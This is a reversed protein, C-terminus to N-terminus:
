KIKDKNRTNYKIIFEEYKKKKGKTRSFEKLLEQDDTEFIQELLKKNLVFTKGTNFNIIIEHSYPTAVPMPIGGSFVNVISFGEDTFYCYRGLMTIENYGNHNIYIKEGDCFGWIENKIAKLSNSLSDSFRLRKGDFTFNESLSPSNYKFEKFNKYIGKNLAPAFVIYDERSKLSDVVLQASAMQLGSMFLLVLIWRM